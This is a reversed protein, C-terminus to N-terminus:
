GGIKVACGYNEIIAKMGELSDKSLPRQSEYANRMGLQHYKSGAYNHYPLLHVQQINLSSLMRGLQHAHSEDDNVDPIVPIRVWIRAGARSLRELNSLIGSNAVGTYKEHADNCMHKVDYLFIDVHSRVAEFAEWPAFGSTDVATHIGNKKAQILLEKLAEAQLMPEGGSFTVGGGSEEYFVRDKLVEEMVAETSTYGGSLQLAETPCAEHCLGCRTCKDQAVTVEGATRDLAGEPCQSVCAGCQICKKGNFLLVPKPDIGEPNHCWQCQLPCGKLFVTTRIGPGDHVSYKQINFLAVM